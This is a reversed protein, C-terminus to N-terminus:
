RIYRVCAEAVNAQAFTANAAEAERRTADACRKLLNETLVVCEAKAIKAEACKASISKASILTTLM